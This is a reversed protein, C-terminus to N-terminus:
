AAAASWAIAVACPGTATVSDPPQAKASPTPTLAAPRSRRAAAMCASRLAIARQTPLRSSARSLPSGSRYRACSSSAARAAMQVASSLRSVIAKWGTTRALPPSTILKWSHRTRMRAGSPPSSCAAAKMGSM